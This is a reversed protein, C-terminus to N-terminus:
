LHTPFDSSAAEQSAKTRLIKTVTSIRISDLEIYTHRKNKSHRISSNKKFLLQRTLHGLIRTPALYWSTTGLKIQVSNRSRYLSHSAKCASKRGLYTPHCTQLKMQSMTMAVYNFKNSLKISLRSPNQIETLRNSLKWFMMLNSIWRIWHYWWLERNLKNRVGKKKFVLTQSWLRRQM